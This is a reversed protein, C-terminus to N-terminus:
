SADIKELRVACAKFEATKSVPDFEPNTLWNACGERFHFAMWVLGAPVQPTIRAAVEVFGRRSVVRIKEGQAIGLNRADRASIDATEAGLLDNLGGCRGTQTRTHYHYLRRGTSLVFPYETDPQEAPPTWEVASFVGKGSAFCGEPHMLGNILAVDSGVKIQMFTRAHEAIGNRRPDAVILHAGNRVAQKVWTAAVPHAETMNSGIVFFLGTKAFEAFSNTM